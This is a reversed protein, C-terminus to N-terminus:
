RFWKPVPNRMGDYWDLVDAAHRMMTAIEDEGFPIAWYISSLTNSAIYLALLPFFDEPPIGDFYRHGALHFLSVCLLPYHHTRNEAM